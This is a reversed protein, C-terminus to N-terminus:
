RLATGRFLYGHTKPTKDLYFKECEVLRFPQAAILTPMARNLRCGNGILTQLWNLRHQWKQVQPEPSLGHELFLFMGEPNLVRYIEGIAGEVDNISCLTFTSVVCDFSAEAFPLREGTLRRHSVAIASQRIRRTALRHMGRNPEATTINHVSRPYHPLNLGTGFGIELVKGRSVALLKKRQAAVHPQDLTLDCVYPFIAQSYLGL